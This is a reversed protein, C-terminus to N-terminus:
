LVQSVHTAANGIVMSLPLIISHCSGMCHKFWLFAAAIAYCTVIVYNERNHAELYNM